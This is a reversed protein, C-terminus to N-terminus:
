AYLRLSQDTEVLNQNNFIKLKQSQTQHFTRANKQQVSCAASNLRSIINFQLYICQLLNTTIYGAFYSNYYVLQYITFLLKDYHVLM